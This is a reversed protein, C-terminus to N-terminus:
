AACFRSSSRSSSRLRVPTRMRRLRYIARFDSPRPHVKLPLPHRLILSLNTRLKPHCPPNKPLSGDGTFRSPPVGRGVMAALTQFIAFLRPTEPPFAFHAIM